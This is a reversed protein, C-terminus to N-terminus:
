EWVKADLEGTRDALRLHLYVGANRKPRLEKETVVALLTVEGRAPLANLYHGKNEM